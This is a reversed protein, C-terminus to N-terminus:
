DRERGGSPDKEQLAKHLSFVVAYSGRAGQTVYSPGKGARRIVGTEEQAAAIIM